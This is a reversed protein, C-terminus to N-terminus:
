KITSAALGDFEMSYEPDVFTILCTGVLVRLIAEVPFAIGFFARGGWDLDWEFNFVGDGGVGRRRILSVGDGDTDGIPESDFGDGTDLAM